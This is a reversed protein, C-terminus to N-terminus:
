RWVGLDNGVILGIFGLREERERSRVNSTGGEMAAVDEVEEENLFDRGAEVERVAERGRGLRSRRDIAVHAIQLPRLGVTM